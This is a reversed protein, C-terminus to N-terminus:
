EVGGERRMLEWMASEGDTGGKLVSQVAELIPARLGARKVFAAVNDAIALGEFYAGADRTAASVEMGHGIARGLQVELRGDGAVAAMLDGVGALGSFTREAAGLAVGVRAAEAIARTAVLARTAPGHGHGAVYGLVFSFIGMLASAIEVGVVDSTGYVLLHDSALASRVARVVEPFRSGVIGAGPEDRELDAAVLPGALV